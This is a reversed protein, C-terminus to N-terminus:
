TNILQTIKKKDPKVWNKRAEDTFIDTYFELFLKGKHLETNSSYMHDFDKYESSYDLIYIVSAWFRTLTYHWLHGHGISKKYDKWHRCLWGKKDITNFFSKRKISLYVIRLRNYHSWQELPLTKNEFQKILKDDTLMKDRNKSKNCRNMEEVFLNTINKMPTSSIDFIQRDSSIDVIKSVMLKDIRGKLLIFIPIDKVNEFMKLRKQVARIDTKDSLFILLGDRSRFYDNLKKDDVLLPHVTFNFLLKDKQQAKSVAICMYRWSTDHSLEYMESLYESENDCLIAVSKM